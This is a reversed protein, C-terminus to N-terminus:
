RYPTGAEAPPADANDLANFTKLTMTNVHTEGALAPVGHKM